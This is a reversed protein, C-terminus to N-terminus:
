RSGSEGSYDSRDRRVTKVFVSPRCFHVYTSRSPAGGVGTGTLLPVSTDLRTKFRLNKLNLNFESPGNIRGLLEM